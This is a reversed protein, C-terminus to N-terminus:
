GFHTVVKRTTQTTDRPQADEDPAEHDNGAPPRVISKVALALGALTIAIGITVPLTKPGVSENAVSSEPIGFAQFLYFLGYAVVVGGVTTDTNSFRTRTIRQEAYKSLK